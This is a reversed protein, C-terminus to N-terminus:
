EKDVFYSERAPRYPRDFVKPRRLGNELPGPRTVSLWRRYVERSRDLPLFQAAENNLCMMHIWLRTTAGAM